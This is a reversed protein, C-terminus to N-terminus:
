AILLGCQFPQLLLVGPPHRDGLAFDFGIANAGLGVSFLADEESTIGAIKIFLGETTFRM